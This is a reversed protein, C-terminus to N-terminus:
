PFPSTRGCAKANLSLQPARSSERALLSTRAEAPEWKTTLSQLYQLKRELSLGCLLIGYFAGPPVNSFNIRSDLELFTNPFCAALHHICIVWLFLPTCLPPSVVDGMVYEQARCVDRLRVGSGLVLVSFSKHVVSWGSLSSTSASSM